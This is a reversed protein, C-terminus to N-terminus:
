CHKIQFVIHHLTLIAYEMMNLHLQLREAMEIENKEHKHFFLPELPRLTCFAYMFMSIILFLIDNEGGVRDGLSLALGSIPM